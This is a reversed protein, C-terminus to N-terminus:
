EDKLAKQISSNLSELSKAFQSKAKKFKKEGSYKMHEVQDHLRDKAKELDQVTKEQVAQGNEKAKLKLEELQKEISDMRESMETKFTQFDKKAGEIAESAMGMTLPSFFLGLIAAFIVTKM